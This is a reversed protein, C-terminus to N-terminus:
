RPQLQTASPVSQADVLRKPGMGCLLTPVRRATVHISWMDSTLSRAGGARRAAMSSALLHIHCVAHLARPTGRGFSSRHMGSAHAAM